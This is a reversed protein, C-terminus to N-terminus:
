LRDVFPQVMVFVRPNDKELDSRQVSLHAVQSDNKYVVGQMADLLAKLIGDIDGAKRQRYWIVVVSVDCTYPVVELGVLRAVTRKFDRHERSVVFTRSIFKKNLRPPVPLTLSIM